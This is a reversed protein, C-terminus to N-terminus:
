FIYFWMLRSLYTGQFIFGTVPWEEHGRKSGGGGGGELTVVTMTM